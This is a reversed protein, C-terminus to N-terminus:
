SAPIVFRNNEADVLRREFRCNFRKLPVDGPKLALQLLPKLLCDFSVSICVPASSGVTM